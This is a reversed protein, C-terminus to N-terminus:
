HSSDPYIVGPVMPRRNRGLVRSYSQNGVTAYLQPVMCGTCLPSVEEVLQLSPGGVYFLSIVTIFWTMVGDGESRVLASPIEGGTWRVCNGPFPVQTGAHDPAGRYLYNDGTTPRLNHRDYAGVMIPCLLLSGRVGPVSCDLLSDMEDDGSKEIGPSCV